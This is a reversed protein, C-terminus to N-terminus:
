IDFLHPLAKNLAKISSAVLEKPPQDSNISIFPRIENNSQAIQPLTMYHKGRNVYTEITENHFTTEDKREVHAQIQRQRLINEFNESPIYLILTAAPLFNNIGFDQELKFIIEMDLSGELGQYVRTSDLYRDLIILKKAHDHNEIFPKIVQDIHIKRARTFLQAQEFPGIGEKMKKFIEQRLAEGESTGGPERSVLVEYGRKKFDEALGPTIITTKGTFEEGEISIIPTM